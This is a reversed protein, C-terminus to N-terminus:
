DDSNEIPSIKFLLSEDYRNALYLKNSFVNIINTVDKLNIEKTYAVEDWSPIGNNVGELVIEVDYLREM